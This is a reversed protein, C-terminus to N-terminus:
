GVKKIGKTFRVDAPMILGFVFCVTFRLFHAWSYGQEPFFHTLAIRVAALPILFLFIGGWHDCWGALM